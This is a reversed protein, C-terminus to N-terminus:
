AGMIGDPAIAVLIKGKTRGTEIHRHAAVIQALPYIKEIHPKLKGTAMLGALYELNEAKTELLHNRFNRDRTAMAWLMQLLAFRAKFPNEGLYIGNPKLAPKSQWYTRKGVTDYVFDYQIGTKAFDQKNYDLVLDAGLASVWALNSSSCVATVHAGLHKALQVAMHGIGGSAGYILVRQGAQVKAIDRVGDLATLGVLPVAAAQAFNISDPIKGLREERALVFEANSNLAVGFVRDGVRFRTVSSGIEVVTGSVDSGLFPDSPKVFGKFPRIPLFGQRYFMDMPNISVYQVKVLVRNTDKESFTPRPVDELRLVEPAGYTRFVVAKM